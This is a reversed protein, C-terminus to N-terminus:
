HTHTHSLLLVLVCRCRELLGGAMAVAHVDPAGAETKNFLM